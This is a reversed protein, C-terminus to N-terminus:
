IYKTLHPSFDINDHTCLGLVLTDASIKVVRKTNVSFFRKIKHMKYEPSNFFAFKVKQNNRTRNPLKSYCQTKVM